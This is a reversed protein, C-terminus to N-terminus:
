EKHGWGRQEPRKGKWLTLKKGTPTHSRHSPLILNLFFTRQHILDKIFFAPLLVSDHWFSEPYAIFLYFSQLLKVLHDIYILWRDSARWTGIRHSLVPTNSESGHDKQRRCRIRLCSSIFFSSETEIYPADHDWDPDFRHRPPPVPPIPSPTDTSRPLCPATLYQFM